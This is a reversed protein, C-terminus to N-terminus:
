NSTEGSIIFYPYDWYGEINDWLQEFESIETKRNYSVDDLEKCNAMYPLSESFYFYEDDYGVLPVYHTYPEEEYVRIFVIVPVGKVVERKLDEVTGDTKFEVEYGRESLFTVIGYPSVGGDSVKGPFNKFLEVGDAEEKYHRLIYASSFAACELGSQYDFYNESTIMYTEPVINNNEKTKSCGVYYFMVGIVVIVTLTYLTIHVKIRSKKGDGM